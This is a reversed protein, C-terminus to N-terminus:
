ANLIQEACKKIHKDSFNNAVWEVYSKDKEFVQKVTLGKYKGFKFTAEKPSDKTVPFPVFCVFAQCKACELRRYLSGDKKTAEFIQYTHNACKECNISILDENM